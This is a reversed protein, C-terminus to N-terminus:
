NRGVRHNDLYADLDKKRYRIIIGDQSFRVKGNERLTVLYRTSIKLYKAAEKSDLIEDYIDELKRERLAKTMEVMQKQMAQMALFLDENSM